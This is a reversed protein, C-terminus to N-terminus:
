RWRPRMVIAGEAVGRVEVENVSTVPSRLNSRMVIVKGDHTRAPRDTYSRALLLNNAQRIRYVRKHNVPALGQVRLQRNLLADDATARVPPAVAPLEAPLRLDAAGGGADQDVAARERSVRVCPTRREGDQAKHYRRRPRTRGSLRDHLNSRSMGLTQAVAKM